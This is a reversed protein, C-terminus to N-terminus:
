NNKQKFNNSLLNNFYYTFPSLIYLFLHKKSIKGLKFLNQKSSEEM